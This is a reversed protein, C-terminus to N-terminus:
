EVKVCDSQMEMMAAALNEKKKVSHGVKSSVTWDVSLM